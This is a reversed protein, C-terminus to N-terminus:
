LFTVPQLLILKKKAASVEKLKQKVVLLVFVIFPMCPIKYRALTGFNPAALTVITGFFICYIFFSLLFPDRFIIGLFGLIRSKFVAYIFLYFIFFSELASLLMIPKTAEWIFPRFFVATLAEPVRGLVSVPNTFDVEGMKFGSNGYNDDQGLQQFTALQGAIKETKYADLTSNQLQDVEDLALMVVGSFVGLFIVLSLARIFSNKIKKYINLGFWLFFSFVVVLIYPKFYYMLSLSFLLGAINFVRIRKKIFIKWFFWLGYGLGALSITDKLLISSWFCVGPLLVAAIAAQKQYRPFVDAFVEYMRYCSMLAFYALLISICLYSNFFLYSLPLAVLPVNATVNGGFGERLIGTDAAFKANNFYFDWLSARPNDSIQHRINLTEGYYGFTDAIKNYYFESLCSNLFTCLFKFFFAFIFIKVLTSNAANPAIVQKKYFLFLIFLLLPVLLIDQVHFLSIDTYDQM